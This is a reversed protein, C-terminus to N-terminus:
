GLISIYLMTLVDNKPFSRIYSELNEMFLTKEQHYQELHRHWTKFYVEALDENRELFIKSYLKDFAEFKKAPNKEIEYCLTSFLELALANIDGIWRSGPPLNFNNEHFKASEWKKIAREQETKSEFNIDESPFSVKMLYKLKTLLNQDENQDSYHPLDRCVMVNYRIFALLKPVKIDADFINGIYNIRMLPSLLINM